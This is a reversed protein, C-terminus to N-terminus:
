NEFAKLPEEFLQMCGIHSLYERRLDFSTPFIELANKFIKLASENGLTSKILLAYCSCIRGLWDNSNDTYIKNVCNDYYSEALKITDNETKTYTGLKFERKIKFFSLAYEGKSPLIGSQSYDDLRDIYTKAEDTTIEKQITIIELLAILYKIEQIRDHLSNAIDVAQLLGKRLM